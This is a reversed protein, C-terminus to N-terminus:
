EKAQESITVTFAKGRFLTVKLLEALDSEPVDFSVRGAGQGSIKIATTMDPLSASFEVKDIM